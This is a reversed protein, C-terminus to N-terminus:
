QNGHAQNIQFGQYYSVNVSDLLVNGYGTARVRFELIEDQKVVHILRFNAFAGDNKIAKKIASSKIELEGVTSQTRHSYIDIRCIPRIKSKLEDFALRFDVALVGPAFPVAPGYAMFGPQHKSGDFYRVAGNSAGSFFKNIGTKGPFIEGEYILPTSARGFDRDYDLYIFNVNQPLTEEFKNEGSQLDHITDPKAIQLTKPDNEWKLTALTVRVNKKGPHNVTIKALGDNTWQITKIYPETFSYLHLYYDKIFYVKLLSARNMTQPWQNFFHHIERSVDTGLLAHTLPYKKLTNENWNVFNPYLWLAKHSNELVAACSTMGGIYANDLKDGLERSIDRITYTKSNHWQVYWGLNFILAVLVVVALLTKVIAPTFLLAAQKKISNKLIYGAGTLVVAALIYIISPGPQPMGPFIRGLLPVFCFYMAAALWLSDAAYLVSKQFISYPQPLNTKDAALSLDRCHKFLMVTMFVMVPLLPVFYRTPRYNMVFFLFTHAFFFLVVGTETLRAKRKLLRRFFIPLYLLMSIWLVPTKYFQDKWPFTLFNHWANELGRPFMLGGMYQGPASLIWERNPLYHLVYWPIMLVLVGALIFAMNKLTKMVDTKLHSDRHWLDMILVAIFPMPLLYAMISKFIFGMFAAAGALILNLRGPKVRQRELFYLTLIVWFTISTEFTGIKNYMVYFFNVALLLGGLLAFAIDDKFYSKLTLLFFFLSLIAFLYSFLRLQLMGVGFWKFLGLKIYPLIPNYNTIRWDDPYWEDYLAKSRSNHCQNGEDTLISGSFTIHSPLDARPANLRLGTALILIAVMALTIATKNKMVNKM